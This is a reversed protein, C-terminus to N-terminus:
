FKSHFKVLCKICVEEIFRHKDLLPWDPEDPISDLLLNYTYPDIGYVEQELVEVGLLKRPKYEKVEPIELDSEEIGSKLALLKESYGDPLAVRMKRKVEAEDAIVLYKDIVEYKRTVPPVLSAKTMRAGWERDDTSTDFADDMMFYENGKVVGTGVSAHLDLDSETDSATSEDESFDNENDDSTESDSNMKKKKLKSLSRKIERDFAGSDIGGNAYVISNSKSTGKRETMVKNQIKKHKSGLLYLGAESVDKFTKVAEDRENSLRPNRELSRALQILQLIIHKM